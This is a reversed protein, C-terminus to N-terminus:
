YSFKKILTQRNKINIGVGHNRMFYIVKYNDDQQLGLNGQTTNEPRRFEQQIFLGSLLNWTHIGIGELEHSAPIVLM